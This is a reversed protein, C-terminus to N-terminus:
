EFRRAFDGSSKRSTIWILPASLILGITAPALWAAYIPSIIIAAITLVLGLLTPFLSQRFITWFSYGGDGRAQPSWGSDRGFFDRCDEFTRQCSGMTVIVVGTKWNFLISGPPYAYESQKQKYSLRDTVSSVLGQLIKSFANHSVDVQHVVTTCRFPM